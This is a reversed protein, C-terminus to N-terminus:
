ANTKPTLVNMDSKSCVQKVSATLLGIPSISFILVCTFLKVIIIIIIIISYNRICCNVM